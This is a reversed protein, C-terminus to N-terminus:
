DPCPQPTPPIDVTQVRSGELASGGPLDKRYQIVALGPRIEVQNVLTNMLQAIDDQDAAMMAEPDRAMNWVEEEEPDDAPLEPHFLRIVMMDGAIEELLRDMIGYTVVSEMMAAIVVRNLHEANVPAACVRSCSYGDGGRSLQMPSRCLGCQLVNDLPYRPNEGPQSM